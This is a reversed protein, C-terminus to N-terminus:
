KIPITCLIHTSNKIVFLQSSFLLVIMRVYQRVDEEGECKGNEAIKRSFGEFEYFRASRRCRRQIDGVSVRNKIESEEM